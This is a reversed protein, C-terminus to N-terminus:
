SLNDEVNKNDEEGLKMSDIISMGENVSSMLTHNWKEKENENRGSNDPNQETKQNGIKYHLIEHYHDEDKLKDINSSSAM